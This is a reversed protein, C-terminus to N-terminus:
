TCRSATFLYMYNVQQSTGSAIYLIMGHLSLLNHLNVFFARKQQDNKLVTLNVQQLQPVKESFSTFTQSDLIECCHYHSLLNARDTNM